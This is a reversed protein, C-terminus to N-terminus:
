LLRIWYQHTQTVQQNKGERYNARQPLQHMIQSDGGVLTSDLVSTNSDSTSKKEGRNNARQPLQHMIQSDGGVLTPVQPWLVLPCVGSKGVVGKDTRIDWLGYRSPLDKLM